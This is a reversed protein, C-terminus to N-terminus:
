PRPIFSRPKSPRRSNKSRRRGIPSCRLPHTSRAPAVGHDRTAALLLALVQITEGLGMDDALCAGLGLGSVLRLWSSGAQQYPRLTGQLVPGPDGSLDRAANPARLARLTDAPWPGAATEAWDLSTQEADGETVAAGALMRMAAAFSLGEREALSEADRFRAM